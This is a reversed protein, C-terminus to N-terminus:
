REELSHYRITKYIKSSCEVEMKTIAAGRVAYLVSMLLPFSVTGTFTAVVRVSSPCLCVVLILVVIYVLLVFFM